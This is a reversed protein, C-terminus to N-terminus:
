LLPNGNTEAARLVQPTFRLLAGIEVAVCVHRGEIGASGAAASHAGVSRATLTLPALALAVVAENEWLNVLVPALRVCAQRDHIWRQRAASVSIYANPSRVM